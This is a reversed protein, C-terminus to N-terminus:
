HGEAGRTCLVTPTPAEKNPMNSAGYMFAVTPRSTYLLAPGRDKQQGGTCDLLVHFLPATSLSQGRGQLPSPSLLPSVIRRAPTATLRASSTAVVRAPTAHAADKAWVPAEGMSASLKVWGFPVDTTLPVIYEPPLARLIVLLWVTAVLCTVM